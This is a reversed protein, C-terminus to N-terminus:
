RRTGQRARLIRRAGAPVAFPELYPYQRLTRFRRIDRGHEGHRQSEAAGHVTHGSTVHAIHESRNQRPDGFIASIMSLAAAAGMGIPGATALMPTLLPLVSGALAAAGAGTQLGVRPSGAQIGTTLGYLGAGGTLINGLSIGGINLGCLGGGGGTPPLGAAPFGQMIVDGLGGPFGNFIM